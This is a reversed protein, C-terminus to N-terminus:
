QMALKDCRTTFDVKAILTGTSNLIAIFLFETKKGGMKRATTSKRNKKEEGTASAVELGVIFKVGSDVAWAFKGVRGVCQSALGTSRAMRRSADPEMLGALQFWTTANAWRMIESRGTGIPLERRSEFAKAIIKSLVTVRKNLKLV